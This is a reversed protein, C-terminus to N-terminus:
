RRVFRWAEELQEVPHDEVPDSHAVLIRQLPLKAIEELSQRVVPGGRTHWRV